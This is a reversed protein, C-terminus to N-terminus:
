KEEWGAPRVNSDILKFELISSQGGDRGGGALVRSGLRDIRTLEGCTVRGGWVLRHCDRSLVRSRGVCLIRPSCAGKIGVAESEGVGESM